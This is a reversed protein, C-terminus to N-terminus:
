RGDFLGEVKETRAAQAPGKGGLGLLGRYHVGLARHKVGIWDLCKVALQPVDHNGLFLMAVALLFATRQGQSYTDWLAGDWGPAQAAWATWYWQNLPVSIFVFVAVMVSWWTRNKIALATIAVSLACDLFWVSMFAGTECAVTTAVWSTFLAFAFLLSARKLLSAAILLGLATDYLIM